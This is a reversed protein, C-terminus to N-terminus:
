VPAASLMRKGRIHSLVFMTLFASAALGKWWWADLPWLLVVGAALLAVRELANLRGELFGAQAASLAYLGVAAWLFIELAVLTDGSLFPTFAFLLPIVYLGKALKWATFGTRFPETKAIAAAAFAAICVPPTVNSDQSLWFIIMHASLLATTIVGASLVQESLTSVLSLPLAAVLAAADARAMSEGLAEAGAIGLSQLLVAAQQPVDGAAIADILRIEVIMDSLAPAALTALIIYSATVPLGMGLVLSALCILVIAILVSGNSWQEIMLGFTNGVGTTGLMNVFIGITVLLIATPIMQKAGLALAEVIAKPGMPSRSLWSAAVIAGISIIAAFDATYGKMMLGILVVIPIFYFWGLKLVERVKPHAGGDATVSEKQVNIRVWVLVSFLYLLAPLLAVGIITIYPIQTYSAMVFAGAGMIPPMMQGGTSAATELGAAFQGSFGARKMMPITLSGTSVVNAAASGSISGMLGSAVVAVFGPGGRLRATACRSLDIIFDSAGSKALFAGFLIFLFVYSYSIRALPGFLGDPGFYALGPFHLVGDFFQGLGLAYGMSLMIIIPVTWGVSRRTFELALLIAVASALWDSWVFNMGREYLADQMIYLYIFCGVALVGLLLDVLDAFPRSRGSASRWAPLYLACLLGLTGFHIAGLMLDSVPSFAILYLHLLSIGASLWMLPPQWEARTSPRKDAADSVPASTHEVERQAQHMEV